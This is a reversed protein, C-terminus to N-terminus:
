QQALILRLPAGGLGDPLDALRRYLAVLMRCMRPQVRPPVDTRGLWAVEEPYDAGLDEVAESLRAAPNANLHAQATSRVVVAVGNLEDVLANKDDVYATM